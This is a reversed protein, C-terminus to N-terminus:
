QKLLWISAWLLVANLLDKDVQKNSLNLQIQNYIHIEKYMIKYEVTFLIPDWQTSCKYLQCLINKM